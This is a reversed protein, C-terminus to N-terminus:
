MTQLVLMRERGALDRKTEIRADPFVRRAADRLRAGQNWAHEALLLGGPRLLTPAQALLREILAAGRRGAHLAAEPEHERIEPPLKQYLRTSVYPLNAVILDVPTELAGLLDGEVFEIRESVFHAQANRKALRLAARSSDIAIVSAHPAYVAIAVAIAGGGTGADVVVPSPLPGSEGNRTGSEKTPYPVDPIERLRDLACDVLLETEPRPILAAPTCALDLGYFERHGTIYAAPQHSLRRLLLREYAAHEEATIAERLRAYLQERTTALAHGLLVEAELRAGDIGAAGLRAEAGALSRALSRVTGVALTSRGAAM